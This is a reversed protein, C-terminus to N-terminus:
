AAAAPHRPAIHLPRGFLFGQMAHILTSDGKIEKHAFERVVDLMSQDEIGEAIVQAGSESAFALIAILAGRGPGGKTAQM